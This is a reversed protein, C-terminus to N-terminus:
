RMLRFKPMPQSRDKPVIKMRMLGKDRFHRSIEFTKETFDDTGDNRLHYYIKISKCYEHEFIQNLMTRDSLGCSHGIIFVQFDNSEIFRILDHYNSTQSYKFSKIHTFLDNNKLNEFKLYDENLEDGFGFIIPNKPNDLEGHIYIHKVSVDKLFQNERGFYNGITSTYNFNLYCIVEPNLDNELNITVIDERLIKQSFFRSFSTHSYNQKEIELDTFYTELKKSLISFENNLNKILGKDGNKTAKLLLEFYENEIDVWRLDSLNDYLRKMLSSHFIINMKVMKYNKFSDLRSKVDDFNQIELPGAFNYKYSDKYSLEFLEDKYEEKEVFTEIARKFFDFIFDQYSTKLGHALDFGNGILILRNV